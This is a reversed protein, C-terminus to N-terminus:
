VFVTIKGNEKGSNAQRANNGEVKARESGLHSPVSGVSGSQQRANNTIYWLYQGWQGLTLRVNNTIYGGSVSGVSGPTIHRANNTIHGLLM